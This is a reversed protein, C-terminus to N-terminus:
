SVADNMKTWGEMEKERGGGDGVELQPGSLSTSVGVGMNALEVLKREAEPQWLM